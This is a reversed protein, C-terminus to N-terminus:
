QLLITIEERYFGNGTLESAGPPVAGAAPAEGSQSSATNGKLITYFNGTYLYHRLMSIRGRTSSRM